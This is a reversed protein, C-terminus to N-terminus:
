RGREAVVLNDFQQKKVAGVHFSLRLAVFVSSQACGSLSAVVVAALQQERFTLGVFLVAVYRVVRRQRQSGRATVHLDDLQQQQVAGLDVRAGAGLEADRREHKSGHVTVGLRDLTENVHAGIHVSLNLGISIRRESESTKLSFM